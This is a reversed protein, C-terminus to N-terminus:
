WLHLLKFYLRVTKYNQLGSIWFPSRRASILVLSEGSTGTSQEGKGPPQPYGTIQLKLGAEFGATDADEFKQNQGETEMMLGGEGVRVRWKGRILGVQIIQFSSGM